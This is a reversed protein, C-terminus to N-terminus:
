LFNQLLSWSGRYVPNAILLTLKEALWSFPSFGFRSLLFMVILIGFMIEREYRMINFYTKSPLFALALRSGDFPPVPILNFFAFVFNLLASYMMLIYVWYICTILFEPAGSANLYFYLAVFSGYLVASLIGLLLNVTPGAAASFAMGRKPNRFNRTNIPVPKAFGFGFVIMLITGLPDLHKAPNLTLRGLNYATHDGCKYAVYGHATEHLCLAFIVVPITLLLSIIASKLDNGGLISFLM